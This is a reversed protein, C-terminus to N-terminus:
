KGSVGKVVDQQIQLIAQNTDKPLSVFYKTIYQHAVDTNENYDLFMNIKQMGIVVWKILMKRIDTLDSYDGRLYCEYEKILIRSNSEVPNFNKAKEEEQEQEIQKQNLQTYKKLAEFRHAEYARIVKSIYIPSFNQFHEFDNGLEGSCAMMFANELQESNFGTFRTCLFGV